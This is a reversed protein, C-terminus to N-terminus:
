IQQEVGSDDCGNRMVTESCSSWPSGREADWVPIQSDSKATAAQDPDGGGLLSTSRTTLRTPRLALWSV